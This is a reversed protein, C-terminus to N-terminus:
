LNNWFGYPGSHNEGLSRETGSPARVFWEKALPGRLNGGADRFTAKISHVSGDVAAYNGIGEHWSGLRDVNGHFPDINTRNINFWPDEEYLLPAPLTQTRGDYVLRALAPVNALKFGGWGETVAYDFRGNSGIGSALVGVPLSPCRVMRRLTNTEWLSVLAGDVSGWSVESGAWPKQQWFETGANRTRPLAGRNLNSFTLIGTALQRLNNMCSFRRGRQTVQRLAPLVLSLLIVIIAIVVLLEILTFAHRKTNM